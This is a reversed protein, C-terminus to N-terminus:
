RNWGWRKRRSGNAGYRSVGAEIEVLGSIIFGTKARQISQPTKPITRITASVGSMKDRVQVLPLGESSNRSSGETESYRTM